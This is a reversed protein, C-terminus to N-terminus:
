REAETIIRGLPLPRAPAALEPSSGGSFDRHARRTGYWCRSKTYSPETRGKRVLVRVVAPARLRRMASKTLRACGQSVAESM